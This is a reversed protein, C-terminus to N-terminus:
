MLLKGKFYIMQRHMDVNVMATLKKHLKNIALNNDQKTGSGGHTLQAATDYKEQSIAM